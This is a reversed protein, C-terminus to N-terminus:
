EENRKTQKIAQLVAHATQEPTHEPALDVRVDCVALYRDYREEYRRRLSEVDSSLPRDPTALLSSLPRDLFVLVGNRRLRRVTDDRLVAGGGTAVIVGDRVAIEDRIVAAEVDRFASEGSQVIHEAASRGTRQELVADSDLLPKGTSESLLKGVTTKGCGPMGLLVVSQKRETLEREIRYVLDEPARVDLFREAAAVAQAVLMGLGGTARVGAERAALVLETRLPHYVMDAVGCLTSLSGLEIESPWACSEDDPFMGLPTTNIIVGVDTHEDLERYSIEGEGSPERSVRLVEAAGLSRAVALATRSTGGTGLVLVKKGRVDIGNQELLCRMGYFDTNDGVLRGGRNVVTNVAGISLAAESLEDLYPIVTQKYPITVNIGRFARRSFFTEIEDERLEQLVYRYPADILGEECLARGIQAHIEGSFSHGLRGGICGYETITGMYDNM